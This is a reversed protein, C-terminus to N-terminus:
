WRWFSYRLLAWVSRLSEWFNDSLAAVGAVVAASLVMSLVEVRPDNPLSGIVMGFCAGVVAGYFLRDRVDSKDQGNNRERQM